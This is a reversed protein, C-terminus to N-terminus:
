CDIFTIRFNFRMNGAANSIFIFFLQGGQWVASSTGDAGNFFIKSSIKRYKRIMGFSSTYVNTRLTKKWIIDFDPHPVNRMTNFNISSVAYERATTAYQLIGSADTIPLRDRNKARVVMCTVLSENNSDYIIGAKLGVLKVSDAIRENDGDGASIPTLHVVQATDAVTAVGAPLNEIDYQKYETM